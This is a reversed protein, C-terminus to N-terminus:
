QRSVREPSNGFAAPVVDGAVRDLINEKFFLALRRPEIDAVGARQRWYVYDWRDAHFADAVLPTGLLFKVQERTMGRQLKAVAAPSLLNGQQVEIRYPHLWNTCASMVLVLAGAAAMRLGGRCDGALQGGLDVAVGM